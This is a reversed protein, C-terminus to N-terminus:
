KKIAEQKKAFIADALKKAAKECEEQAKRVEEEQKQKVQELADKVLDTFQNKSLSSIDDTISSQIM